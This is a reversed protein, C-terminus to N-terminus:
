HRFCITFKSNESEFWIEQILIMSDIPELINDSQFDMIDEKPRILFPIVFKALM